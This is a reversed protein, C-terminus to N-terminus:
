GTIRKPPWTGRSGYFWGLHYRAAFFYVLHKLKGVPIYLLLASTLLYYLIVIDTNLLFFATALQFSSVLLNSIYDDPNSLKRMISKALRKILIGYGSISSVLLIGICLYRLWDPYDFRFFSLVFILIALFTGGHYILGATYTPLHLYASEKKKPSMAGTFSYKIGKSVSGAPRAFDEPSGLSILNIVHYILIALCYALAALSIWHYWNMSLSNYAAM